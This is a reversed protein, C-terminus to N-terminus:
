MILCTSKKNNGTPNNSSRAAGSYRAAAHANLVSSTSFVANRPTTRRPYVVRERAHLINTTSYTSNYNNSYNNQIRPPLINTRNTTTVSTPLRGQPHNVVEPAVYNYNGLGNERRINDPSKPVDPLVLYCASTNVPQGTEKPIEQKVPDSSAAVPVVEKKSNESSNNPNKRPKKMGNKMIVDNEECFDIFKHWTTDRDLTDINGIVILLAQARTLAVNLRKPNRLFGVGRTLSRVTSLLIVPKEQGQFKEVSGIDIDDWQRRKCEIAIKQCQKKYPSIVGICKQGVKHGCITKARMLMEIYFVICKVERMNYWSPSNDDQESEGIVHEFLIPVNKNPLYKWGCAWRTIQPRGEAMLENSYFERDSFELIKPHSRFNRILKTIVRPNYKGNSNKAYIGHDILRELISIGLKPSAKESVVIPGLQMPDGALIIQGHIKRLSTIVGAIPILTSPETSSGAEDIFVYDFHHPDIKAQAFKGAIALTTLIVRYQALDSMDPYYHAGFKLNSINVLDQDLTDLEQEKSIAFMRYIDTDSVYQMLRHTIVNCAYNSPAAVLIRASTNRKMIQCIAEVITTTKGTGPPGMLIYPAPFATKEVIHIIASQQEPNTKVSENIWEFSSFEIPQTSVSDPFFFQAIKHDKVYELAQQELQITMRNALFHIDFEVDKELVDRTEVDLVIHEKKLQYVKAYKKDKKDSPEESRSITLKDGEMIAPTHESLNPIHLLYYGQSYILKENTKDIKSLQESAACDEMQVLTVWFSVYNNPTVGKKLYSMIKEYLQLQRGTLNINNFDRTALSQMDKPPYYWSLPDFHMTKVAKPLLQISNEKIEELTVDNHHLLRKVTLQYQTLMPHNNDATYFILIAYPHNVTSLLEFEVDFKTANVEAHTTLIHFDNNPPLVMIVRNVKIKKESAIRCVFKGDKARFEVMLTFQQEWWNSTEITFIEGHEKMHDEFAKQLNFTKQCVLCSKDSYKFTTEIQQRTLVHALTYSEAPNPELDNAPQEDQTIINPYKESLERIKSMNVNFFKSKHAQKVKMYYCFDYKLMTKPMDDYTFDGINNQVLFKNTAKRLAEKPLLGDKIKEDVYLQTLIKEVAERIEMSKSIGEAMTPLYKNKAKKESSKSVCIGM